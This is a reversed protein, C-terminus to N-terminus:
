RAAPPGARFQRALDDFLAEIILPVPSNGEIQHAATIVRDLAPSLLDTGLRVGLRQFLLDNFDGSTLRKLQDSLAAALFRLLWQANRRQEDTGSSIKSLEETIAKSVELPQLGDLQSIQRQIRDKLQRLEPNLLQRAISVSGESLTAVAAAEAESELLQERVLIAAVDSETLPFFRVVQSRSRITPLLSDPNDCVILILTNPPPEELTKLLANAGDANLHQADNILAIRRDSAMPAMALDFCLGEQGRREREGAILAIPIESKGEPLGVEHFDPWAGAEFGRCARCEGCADIEHANRAECFLSQALLRAFKSKGIGDPGCLVYAHSM